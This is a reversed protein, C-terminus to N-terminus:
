CLEQQLSEGTFMWDDRSAAGPDGLILSPFRKRTTSFTILQANKLVKNWVFVFPFTNVNVKARKVSTETKIKGVVYCFIKTKLNTKTHNESGLSIHKQKFTSTEIRKQRSFIGDANEIKFRARNLEGLYGSFPSRWKRSWKSLRRQLRSSSLRFRMLFLTRKSVSQSM